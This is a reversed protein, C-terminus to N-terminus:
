GIGIRKRREDILRREADVIDKLSTARLEAWERPRM